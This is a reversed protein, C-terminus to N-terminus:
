KSHNNLICPQPFVLGKIPFYLQNPFHRDNWSWEYEWQKTVWSTSCPFSVISFPNRPFFFFLFSFFLFLLLQFLFYVFWKQRWSDETTKSDESHTNKSFVCLFMYKRGNMLIWLSLLVVVSGVIAAEISLFVKSASHKLCTRGFKYSLDANQSMIKWRLSYFKLIQQINCPLAM